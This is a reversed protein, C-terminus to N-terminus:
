KLQEEIRKLSERVAKELLENHGIADMLSKRISKLTSELCLIRNNLKAAEINQPFNGGTIDSESLKGDLLKILDGIAEQEDTYDKLNKVIRHCKPSIKHLGYSQADTRVVNYKSM